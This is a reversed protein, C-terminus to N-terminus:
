HCRALCTVNIVEGAPHFVSNCFCHMSHWLFSFLCFPPVNQPASKSPPPPCTANESRSGNTECLVFNRFKFLSFHIDLPKLLLNWAFFTGRQSWYTIIFKEVFIWLIKMSLKCASYQVAHSWCTVSCNLYQELCHLPAKCAAYLSFKFYIFLSNIITPENIYESNQCCDNRLWKM